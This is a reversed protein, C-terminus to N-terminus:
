DKRRPIDFRHVVLDILWDFLRMLNYGILFGVLGLLMHVIFAENVSIADIM